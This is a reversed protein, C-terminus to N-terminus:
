QVIHAHPRPIRCAFCFPTFPGLVHINCVQRGVKEITNSAVTVANLARIFIYSKFFFIFDRGQKMCTM